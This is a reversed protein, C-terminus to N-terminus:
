RPGDADNVPRDGGRRGWAVVTGMTAGITAGGDDGVMTGGTAGGDGQQLPAVQRARRRDTGRGEYMLDWRTRARGHGRGYGYGNM